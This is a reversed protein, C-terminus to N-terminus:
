TRGPPPPDRGRGRPRRAVRHRPAADHHRQRAPRRAPVGARRDGTGAAGRGREVTAQKILARIDEETVNREDSPRLRMVWLVFNTSWSLIKVLPKAVRPSRRRRAGGRARRHARSQAARHGEARTRRHRALLLHHRRRGHGAGVAEAYPAVLPVAQALGALETALTAGGYAGAFIGVLTIGVQVTSLFETPNSAIRLAARAGKDGGDARQQLRVRRSAVVAIESM